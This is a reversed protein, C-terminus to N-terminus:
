KLPDQSRSGLLIRIEHLQMAISFFLGIAAFQLLRFPTYSGRLLTYNLINAVKEFAALAALAFGGYFLIDRIVMEMKKM